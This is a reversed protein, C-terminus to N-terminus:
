KGMAPLTFCFASGKDVESEVWIRGGHREIIKKCIALGIGTGTYHEQGHLRRFLEFAQQARAPDMGIGNDKVCLRWQTGERGASIDIELPRESRFKIANGILNEIVQALQGSHAEVTPLDGICVRAGSEDITSRLIGM